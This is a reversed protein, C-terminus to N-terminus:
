EWRARDTGEFSIFTWQRWKEPLNLNNDFSLISGGTILILLTIKKEEFQKSFFNQDFSFDDRLIVWIKLRNLRSFLYFSFLSFSLWNLFMLDRTLKLHLLVLGSQYLQLLLLLTKSLQIPRLARSVKLPPSVHWRSSPGILVAIYSARLVTWYDRPGAAFGNDQLRVRCKALQLIWKM